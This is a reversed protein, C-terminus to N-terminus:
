CTGGAFVTIFDLVDQLDPFVNDRNFDISDCTDCTGGAFVDFYIVLDTLDPFVLDNNFDLDGCRPGPTGLLMFVLDQPADSAESPKGADALASWTSGNWQRANWGAQTRANTITAPVAFASGMPSSPTLQWDIWHTGPPLYFDGALTVRFLRKSTDPPTIVPGVTTAFVRHVTTAISSSLRDATADGLLVTSGEAGPPGSWVRLSASAFPSSTTLWGPQYAYVVVEDVYWGDGPPVVVDDAVRFSVGPAAHAAFGATANAEFVGLSQVESWSFAGPAPTGNVTQEVANLAPMAPITSANSYLDAAQASAGVLAIALAPALCALSRKHTTLTNM